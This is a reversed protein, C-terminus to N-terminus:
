RSGNIIKCVLSTSIGLCSSIDKQTYGYEKHAKLILANRQEKNPAGKIIELLPPRFLANSGQDGGNKQAFQAKGDDICLTEEQQASLGSSSLDGGEEEMGEEVFRSYCAKAREPDDSFMSLILSTSLLNPKSEMGITARYSSWRYIDPSRVIGARVPNLVIYRSLALLHEDRLVLVSNFRNKFVHGTAGHRRNFCRSYNGNLFHMGRSLTPEITELLIHFHNDMLCYAHILWCYSERARDLIAIFYHRDEDDIFINKGGNGRSTVHHLGGAIDIRLARGM